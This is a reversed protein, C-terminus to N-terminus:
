ERAAGDITAGSVDGAYVRVACRTDLGASSISLGDLRCGQLSCNIAVVTPTGAGYRYPLIADAALYDRIIVQVLGPFYGVLHTASQLDLLPTASVEQTTSVFDFWGAPAGGPDVVTQQYQVAGGSFIVRDMRLLYVQVVGYGSDPIPLTTGNQGRLIVSPRQGWGCPQHYPHICEGSNAQAVFSCHEFWLWFSNEVVMAANMSGLIVNCNTRNCGEATTNVTDCSPGPCPNQSGMTSIQAGVNIFRVVAAGAIYVALTRGNFTLDQVFMGQGSISVCPGVMPGSIQVSPRVQGQAGGAGSGGRWCGRAAVTTAFFFNASTPPFFICGGCLESANMARRVAPADDHSGNGVAGFLKVSLLGAEQAAEAWSANPCRAFNTWREQEQLPHDLALRHHPRLAAHWNSGPPAEPGRYSPRALATNGGRAALVIAVLLIM